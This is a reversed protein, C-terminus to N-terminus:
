IFHIYYFLIKCYLKTTHPCKIQNKNQYAFTGQNQHSGYKPLIFNKKKDKKIPLSIDDVM